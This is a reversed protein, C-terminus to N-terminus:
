LNLPERRGYKLRSSLLLKLWGAFAVVLGAGWVNQLAKHGVPELNFADSPSDTVRGM